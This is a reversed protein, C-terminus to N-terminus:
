TPHIKRIGRVHVVREIKGNFFHRQIGTEPDFQVTTLSAIKKRCRILLDQYIEQATAGTPRQPNSGGDTPTM